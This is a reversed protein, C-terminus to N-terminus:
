EVYESSAFCVTQGFEFRKMNEFIVDNWSVLGRTDFGNFDVLVDDSVFGKLKKHTELITVTYNHKSGALKAMEGWAARKSERM